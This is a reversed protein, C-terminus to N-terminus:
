GKSHPADTYYYVLEVNRQSMNNVNLRSCWGKACCLMLEGTCYGDKRGELSKGNIRIIAMANNITM